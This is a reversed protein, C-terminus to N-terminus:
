GPNGFLALFYVLVRHTSHNYDSNDTEMLSLIGYRAVVRGRRLTLREKCELGWLKRAWRSCLTNRAVLIIMMDRGLLVTSTRWAVRRAEWSLPGKHSGSQVLYGSSRQKNSNMYDGRWRRSSLMPRILPANSVVIAVLTERCAWIAPTAADASKFVFVVRLIAAIMIFIGACLLLFLLIKRSISLKAQM